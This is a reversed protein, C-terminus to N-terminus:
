RRRLRFPSRGAIADGGPNTSTSTLLGEDYNSVRRWIQRKAESFNAAGFRAGNTMSASRHILHESFEAVDDSETGVWRCTVRDCDDGRDREVGNKDEPIFFGVVVPSASEDTKSSKWGIASGSSEGGDM